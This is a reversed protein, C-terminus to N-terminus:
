SEAQVTLIENPADQIGLLIGLRWHRFRLSMFVFLVVVIDVFDVFIYFCESSFRRNVISIRGSLFALVSDVSVLGWSGNFLSFFQCLFSSIIKGSTMRSLYIPRFGM